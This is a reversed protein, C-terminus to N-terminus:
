QNWAIRIEDGGSSTALATFPLNLVAEEAQPVDIAGFDIEATDMFIVVTKGSTSGMDIRIPISSFSPDATAATQVYRQALSKIFDKRARVSVSGKVSRYGAVFDSTGKEFAEDSLGKIGNTITVDFATVPLTVSNLTLSGTIGNVPNGATTETYTTPTIAQADSWSSSQITLTDSSKATVVKDDLSNFSIVSGVLFNVGNGSETILATASSGTGETIGTGTLAYNFASGSFSIKPEEGGSGSITMEEVYAGFLDERFVGNATRAMHVTPLANTDTLNYTKAVSAGFAGGM